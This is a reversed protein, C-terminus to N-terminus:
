RYPDLQVSQFITISFFYCKWGLLPGSFSVFLMGTLVNFCSTSPPATVCMEIGFSITRVTSPTIKTVILSIIVRLVRLIRKRM